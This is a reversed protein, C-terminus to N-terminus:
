LDQYQDKPLCAEKKTTATYAIAQLSKKPRSKNSDIFFTFVMMILPAIFASAAIVAFVQTPKILPIKVLPDGCQGCVLKGNSLQKHIQHSPPCYPCHYRTM